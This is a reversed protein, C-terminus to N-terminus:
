LHLRWYGANYTGQYTSQWGGDKWAFQQNTFSNKVYTISDISQSDFVVNWRTGNYELIDNQNADINDWYSASHASDSVLDATILYRQGLAPAPIGNGPYTSQPNIVMNVPSITDTPLTDTILNFELITDDSTYSIYGSILDLDNEIDDTTNVRMISGEELAGYKAVLDRWSAPTRGDSELLLAQNGSLSLQHDGPTVVVQADEPVSRFFDYYRADYGIGEVSDVNYINAIITNIIKQRRVKTPPNLWLTAEFNLTAIDLTDDVGVPINRNSWGTDTMTLEVVNSWDLPNNNQQIQISPNFLILIQELLQLKTDTNTTWIDVQLDLNYPVPMYKTVSYKNGPAGTYKGTTPDYEREVVQDTHTHFPEARREPVMKINQIGVTIMPASNIINESHNRVIHQVMRSGDAYRAPVRNYSVGDRTYERVLFGSFVRVFQVMYRKIQEDYWFDLNDSKGDRNAM